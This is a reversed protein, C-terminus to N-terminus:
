YREGALCQKILDELAPLPVFIRFGMRVSYVRGCSLWRYFTPRSVSGGTRRCLIRWADTPTLMTLARSASPGTSIANPQQTKFEQTTHSSIM